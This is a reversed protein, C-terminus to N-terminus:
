TEKCTINFRQRINQASWVGKYPNQSVKFGKVDKLFFRDNHLIKAIIYPDENKPILKKAV